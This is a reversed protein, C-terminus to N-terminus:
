QCKIGECSTYGDGIYGGSCVCKYGGETNECRANKACQSRGSSCENVDITM